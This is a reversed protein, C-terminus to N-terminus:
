WRQVRGPWEVLALQVGSIDQGLQELDAAAGDSVDDAFDARDEGLVAADWFWGGLAEGGRQGQEVGDM